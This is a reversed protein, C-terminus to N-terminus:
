CPQDHLVRDYLATLSKKVSAAYYPSALKELEKPSPPTDLLKIVTEALAHVDGAAVLYPSKEGFISMSGDNAYAAVPTGCALAEVQVLGFSEAYSPAILLATRRYWRPLDTHTVAGIIRVHKGLGRNAVERAIQLAMPGSGIIDLTVDQGRNRLMHVAELADIIGKERILNAVLLLTRATRKTAPLPHFLSTDVPPPIVTVRDSLSPIITSVLRAMAATPVILASYSSLISRADDRNAVAWEYLDGGPLTLIKPVGPISLDAIAKGTPILFHVHILDPTYSTQALWSRVKDAVRVYNRSRWSALPLTFYSPYSVSINGEQYGTFGSVKAHAALLPIRSAIKPLYPQPVVVEITEFYTSALKTEDYVFQCHYKSSSLEPFGDSVVLLRLKNM